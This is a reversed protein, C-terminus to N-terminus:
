RAIEGKMLTHGARTLFCIGNDWDLTLHLEVFGAFSLKELAPWLKDGRAFGREKRKGNSDLGALKKLVEYEEDTFTISIRM